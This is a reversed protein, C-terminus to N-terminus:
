SQGGKLAAVPEQRSMKWAPWVGSLLGFVTAVALTASFIRWNLHFTSYPLQPLLTSAYLIAFAAVLALLGGMASLVINEVVFQIVLDRGSAGFSKRVGIESQRESIRSLNINVLNIAPLGMFALIAFMGLLIFRTPATEGADMSLMDQALIELRTMPLGEMRNYVDPQDFEVRELRERFAAQVQKKDIGPELLYVAHCGGMLRDFFGQMPHTSLPVWIESSGIERHVPVNEVVGVVVHQRADVEITKGIASAEGFCRKRASESIVAVLRADKLDAESFAAGELFNFQLIRWYEADTFRLQFVQKRGDLFTTSGDSQTYLSMREVGPLDRTYRDFFKYGAESSWQNEEGSMVMDRVELIRYLETEPYSSSLQHDALTVVIMIATLTFATGFLSIFTFFKRRKLVKWAMLLYNRLM